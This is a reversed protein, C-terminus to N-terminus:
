LLELLNFPNEKNDRSLLDITLQDESELGVRDEVEDMTLSQGSIQQDNIQIIRDGVALQASAAPGAEIVETIYVTDKLLVFKIGVGEYSGKLRSEIKSLAKSNIYSSHPDLNSIVNNIAIDVLTDRELDDVYKADIYRILEDVKGVVLGDDGLDQKIVTIQSKQDGLNLGLLVGFTLIIAMLVPTWSMRRNSNTNKSYHTM